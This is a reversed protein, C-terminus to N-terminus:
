PLMAEQYGLSTSNAHIGSFNTSNLVLIRWSTMEVL